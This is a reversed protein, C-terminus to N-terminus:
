KSDLQEGIIQIVKELEKELQGYYGDQLYKSTVVFNSVINDFKKLQLLHLNSDLFKSKTLGDTEGFYDDGMRRLSVEENALDILRVRNVAVEENEQFRIKLLLGDLSALAKKLKKNSIISLKGSSIIENLIGNGPRYQVESSFASWFLKSFQEDSISPSNPGTHKLLESAYNINKTNASKVIQLNELNSSFEDKLSNLYEMEQKTQKRKENWNNISLAILIGIVVLIIEGIAYLLYKNFKNETLLRQRIHKFIKIM